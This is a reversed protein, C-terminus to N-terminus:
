AILKAWRLLASLLYYAGICGLWATMITICTGVPIFWNIYGLYPFGSIYDLYDSVPSQPLLSAVFDFVTHWVTLIFNIIPSLDITM